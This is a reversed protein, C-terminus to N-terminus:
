VDKVLFPFEVWVGNSCVIERSLEYMEVSRDDTHRVTSWLKRIVLFGLYIADSITSQSRLFVEGLYLFNTLIEESSNMEERMVPSHTVVVHLVEVNGDCLTWVADRVSTEKVKTGSERTLEDRILDEACVGVMRILDDLSGVM